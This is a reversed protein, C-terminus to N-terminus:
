FLPDTGAYWRDFREKAGNLCSEPEYLVGSPSRIYTFGGYGDEPAAGALEVQWGKAVLETNVATVDEVWVGVHHLGAGGIETDWFSGPSGQLLEIHVPGEQSFSITLDAARMGGDPWWVEMSHSFPVTWGVGLTRTLEEQAAELDVVRIGLHFVEGWPFPPLGLTDLDMM